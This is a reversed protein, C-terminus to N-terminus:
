HDQRHHRLLSQQKSKEMIRQSVEEIHSGCIRSAEEFRGAKLYKLIQKHEEFTKQIMPISPEVNEFFQFSLDVILKHMLIIIPNGTIKAIMHHFEFNARLRQTNENNQFLDEATSINKELETLCQDNIKSPMLDSLIIRELTERAQALHPFTIHTTKLANCMQNVMTDMDVKKIYAGGQSGQRVEIVGFQELSRIAERVTVRSVGFIEGLEKEPPLKDNPGLDGRFIAELVQNVINEYMRNQKIKQFM